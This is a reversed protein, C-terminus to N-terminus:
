EVPQESQDEICQLVYYQNNAFSYAHEDLDIMLSNEMPDNLPDPNDGIKTYVNATYVGSLEIGKINVTAM